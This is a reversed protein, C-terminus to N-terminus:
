LRMQLTRRLEEAEVRDARMLSQVIPDHLVEELDPEVGAVDYESKPSVPLDGRGLASGRREVPAISAMLIVGAHSGSRAFWRGSALRNLGGTIARVAAM